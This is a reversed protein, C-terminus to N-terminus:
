DSSHSAIASLAEQIRLRHREVSQDFPHFQVGLIPSLRQLRNTIERYCSPDAAHNSPAHGTHRTGTVERPAHSPGPAEERGVGSTGGVPVPSM